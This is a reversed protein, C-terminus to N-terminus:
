SRARVAVRWSPSAVARGALPSSAAASLHMAAAAAGSRPARSSGACVAARRGRGRRPRLRVSALLQLLRPAEEVNADLGRARRQSSRM